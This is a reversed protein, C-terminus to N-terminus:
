GGVIDHCSEHNDWSRSTQQFYTMKSLNELDKNPAMYEGQMANYIFVEGVLLYRRKQQQEQDEKGKQKQNQRGDDDGGPVPRLVFPVRSNQLLWIEDGLETSDPALGLTGASTLVVSKGDCKVNEVFESLAEFASM